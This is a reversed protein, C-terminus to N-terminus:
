ITVGIEVSDTDEELMAGLVEEDSPERDLYRTIEIHDNGDSLMDAVAELVEGIGVQSWMLDGSDADYVDYM